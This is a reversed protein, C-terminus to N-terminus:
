ERGALRLRSFSTPSSSPSAFLGGWEGLIRVRDLRAAIRTMLQSLPGLSLLHPHPHLIVVHDAALLDTALSEKRAADLHQDLEPYLRQQCREVHARFADLIETVLAPQDPSNAKRREILALNHEIVHFDRSLEHVLATDNTGCHRLAPLLIAQEVAVHAALRKVLDMLASARDEDPSSVRDFLDSIVRHDRELLDFATETMGNM